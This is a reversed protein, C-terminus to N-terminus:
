KGATLHGIAKGTKKDVVIWKGMNLRILEVKESDCEDKTMPKDTNGGKTVNMKHRTRSILPDNADIEIMEKKM